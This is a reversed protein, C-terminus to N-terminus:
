PLLKRLEALLQLAQLPTVDDPDLARLKRDLKEYGHGFLNLQESSTPSEDPKPIAGPSPTQQGDGGIHGLIGRARILVAEPIGALRAVHIGYAKDTGGAIIKHLFVIEDQWERVAVNLNRM